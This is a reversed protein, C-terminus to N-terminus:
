KASLAPHSASKRFDDIKIATRIGTGRRFCESMPCGHSQFNSCSKCKCFAHGNRPNSPYNAAFEQGCESASLGVCISAAKVDRWAKGGAAACMKSTLMAVEGQRAIIKLIGPFVVVPIGRMGGVWFACARGACLVRNRLRLANRSDTGTATKM